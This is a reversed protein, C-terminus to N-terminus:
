DPVPTVCRKRSRTMQQKRSPEKLHPFDKSNGSLLHQMEWVLHGHGGDPLSGVVVSGGGKGRRIRSRRKFSERERKQRCARM